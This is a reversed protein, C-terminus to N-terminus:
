KNGPCTKCQPLFETLGIKNRFKRYSNARWINAIKDFKLDGLQLQAYQARSVSEAMLGCPLVKGDFTVYCGKIADCQYSKSLECPYIAIKSRPLDEEKLLVSSQNACSDNESMLKGFNIGDAGLDEALRILHPIEAFNSQSITSKFLFDPKKAKAEKKTKVFLKINEVVKEFCAGTRIEEFTNKSVSDFSVYLFSLGSNILALSKDRDILTFNDILSVEFGKKKAFHIMSFIEPNLLPEGLGVLQICQTPYRLQSVISSFFDLSMDSNVVRSEDKNRECYRCGLNCKTTTEIQVFRPLGFYCNDVLYNRLRSSYSVLLSFPIGWIRNFMKRDGCMNDGSCFYKVVTRLIAKEMLYTFFATKDSFM